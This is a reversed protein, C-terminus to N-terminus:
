SFFYFYYLFCIYLNLGLEDTTLTKDWESISEGKRETKEVSGEWEGRKKRSEGSILTKNEQELLSYKSSHFYYFSTPANKIFVIIHDQLAFTESTKASVGPFLPM